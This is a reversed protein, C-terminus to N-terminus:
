YVLGFEVKGRSQAYDSTGVLFRKTNGDIGFSEPFASNQDNSKGFFHQLLQWSSGINIYIAVAGKNFTPDSSSPNKENPSSVIAYIGSMFCNTGLYNTSTSPAYVSQNYTWTGSKLTYFVLAGSASIAGPIGIVLNNGSISVSSGFQYNSGSAGFGSNTSLTQSM